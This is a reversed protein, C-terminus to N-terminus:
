DGDKRLVAENLNSRHAFVGGLPFPLTIPRPANVGVFM